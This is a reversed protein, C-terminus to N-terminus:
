RSIEKKKSVEFIAFNEKPNVIIDAEKEDYDGYLEVTDYELFPSNKLFDYLESLECFYENDDYGITHDSEYNIIGKRISFGQQFFTEIISIIDNNNSINDYSYIYNNYNNSEKEKVNLVRM